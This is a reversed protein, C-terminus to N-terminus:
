VSREVWSSLDLPRYDIGGGQFFKSFFEYFQLRVAQVSVVLGELAIIVANGVLHVLVVWVDGLPVDRVREALAFVALFLGVHALGFAAIRLFSFTNALYGLVTEMVEIGGEALLLVMSREEGVKRAALPHFFIATLPLLLWFAGRPPLLGRWILLATVVAGGYFVIGALGRPDTLVARGRGERVENHVRLLLGVLILAIGFILATGMLTGIEHM